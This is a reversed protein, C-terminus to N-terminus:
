RAHEHHKLKQQVFKLLSGQYSGLMVDEFRLVFTALRLCVAILVLSTAVTVVMPLWRLGGSIAARLMLIINAVPVLAIPVTFKLGPNQLFVVPVVLVMYFPTIMAQGEKFTRAFAAFLMMGAAIFGALLVACLAAIPVARLPLTSELHQGAQELLPAFIPRLTVLIALLNLLGAVSGLTAVYLYKATVISLRSAATSMLTEWTHREREGATADVAPHFCGVAVMIMFLAPAILGLIYGGMEKKTAVNRSVLAFDQWQNTTVGQRVAERELWSGRYSELADRLRGRAAASREQSQDYIIRAQFNGPLAAANAAPPLFELIADVEGLQLQNEAERLLASRRPAPQTDSRGAVPNGMKPEQPAQHADGEEGSGPSPPPHPEHAGVQHHNADIQRAGLWDFDKARQLQWRLAPQSKPWNFVLVRAVFGQTQGLVFLLGTFAIWLLFPYLFAPILISNVVISKERLATRLERWYLVRVERWDLKDARAAAKGSM